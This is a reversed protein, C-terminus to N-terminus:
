EPMKCPGGCRYTDDGQWSCDDDLCESDNQCPEGSYKKASCTTGDCWSTRPDCAKATCDEGLRAYARCVYNEQSTDCYAGLVCTDSRWM